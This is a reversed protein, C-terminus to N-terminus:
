AERLSSGNPLRHDEYHDFVDIRLWLHIRENTFAAEPVDKLFQEFDMLAAAFHEEIAPSSWSQYRKVVGANFEDMDNAPPVAQGSLLRNTREMTREWWAFIHALVDEIREFGQERAYRALEVETLLALRPLYHKWGKDLASLLDQRTFRQEEAQM